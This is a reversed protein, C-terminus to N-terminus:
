SKVHQKKETVVKRIENSANIHSTIRDLKNNVGEIKKLMDEELEKSYVFIPNNICEIKTEQDRVPIIYNIVKDKDEESPEILKRVNEITINVDEQSSSGVNIYFVMITKNLM